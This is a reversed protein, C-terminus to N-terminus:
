AGRSAQRLRSASVRPPAVTTTTASRAARAPRAQPAARVAPTSGAKEIANDSSAPDWTQVMAFGSLGALAMGMCLLINVAAWKTDGGFADPSLKGFAILGGIAVCTAGFQVKAIKDVIGLMRNDHADEDADRVLVNAIFLCLGSGLVLVIFVGRWATWELLFAYILTLSMAAWCWLMGMHRILIAARQAPVTEAAGHFDRVASVSIFTAVIAALAFTALHYELAVMFSMAGASFAVGLMWFVMQSM